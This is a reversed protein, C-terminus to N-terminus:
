IERYFHGGTPWRSDSLFFCLVHKLRFAFVFITCLQLQDTLGKQSFQSHQFVFIAVPRGDQIRDLFNDGNSEGYRLGWINIQFLCKVQLVKPSIPLFIPYGPFFPRQDAMKFRVDDVINDDSADYGIIGYKSRFRVSERCYNLLYPGFHQIERYFHGGTQWRSDSGGWFLRADVQFPVRINHLIAVLDTWGKQSFQSCQFVFIAAPHGDQIRDFFIDGNSEGYQLGCIHIQFLCKIQLVQHSIPLFISHGPFNPRRDAMKFRVDVVINDNSAGYGQVGCKSRFRVSQRCYNLLYPGFRLIEHYFHGATPWRSDSMMSLITMQHTM